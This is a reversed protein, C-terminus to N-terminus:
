HELRATSWSVARESCFNALQELVRRVARNAALVGGYPDDSAAIVTEEFERWALVQRTTNDLLYARLTFRVRSPLPSFDQQLRIIETSLRLDGAASSPTLVVARFAGSNDVAAVMLPAIMRAPSDIWESHAFYELRHAERVYLIRQSDYGSAAHPPNVILTPAGVPGGTPARRAAGSDLAYFTPEPPAAPRLASCASALILLLAACGLRYRPTFSTFSNLTM